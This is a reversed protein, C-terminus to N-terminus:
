SMSELRPDEPSYIFSMGCWADVGRDEPGLGCYGTRIRNALGRHNAFDMRPAHALSTCLLHQEEASDIDNLCPCMRSPIRAEACSRHPIKQLFLDFQGPGFHTRVYNKHQEDAGAAPPPGSPPSSKTTPAGVVMLRELTAALDYGTVLSEANQGLHVSMWKPAVIQLVPLRHEIQFSYDDTIPLPQIWGHDGRIVVVTNPTGADSKLMAEVWRALYLDLTSQVRAVRSIEYQELLHAAAVTLFAFRPKDKNVRHFRLMSQLSVVSGSLTRAEDEQM